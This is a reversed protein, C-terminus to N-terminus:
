IAARQVFEQIALIFNCIKCWLVEFQLGVSIYKMKLTESYM